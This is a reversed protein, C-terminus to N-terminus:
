FLTRFGQAALSALVVVVVLGFVIGATTLVLQRVASNFAKRRRQSVRPPVPRPPSSFPAPRGPTNGTYRQMITESMVRQRMVKDYETRLAPKSLVTYAANILKAREEAKSRQDPDLVTDPHVHRILARYSRTIEERTAGFPVDLVQYYNISPDFRPRGASL